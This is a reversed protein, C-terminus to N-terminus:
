VDDGQSVIGSSHSLVDSSKCSVKPSFFIRGTFVNPLDLYDQM